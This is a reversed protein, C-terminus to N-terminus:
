FLSAMFCLVIDHLYRLSVFRKMCAFMFRHLLARDDDDGGGRQRRADDISCCEFREFM